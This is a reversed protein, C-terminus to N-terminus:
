NPSMPYPIPPFDVHIWRRAAVAGNKTLILAEGRMENKVTIEVNIVV